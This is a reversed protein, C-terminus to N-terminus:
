VRERCSARGIESIQSNLLLAQADKNETVQAVKNLDAAIDIGEQHLEFLATAYRSAISREASM